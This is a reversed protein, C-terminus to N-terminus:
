SYDAIIMLALNKCAYAVRLTYACSTGSDTANYKSVALYLYDEVVFTDSVPSYVFSEKGTSLLSNGQLCSYKLTPSYYTQDCPYGVYILLELKMM